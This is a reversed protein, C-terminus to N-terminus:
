PERKGAPHGDGRPRGEGRSRLALVSGIALMLVAFGNWALDYPLLDVDYRVQHLRLVKHDVVGDFLQFGGAGLVLGAWASRRALTGRRRLDSLLFFLLCRVEQAVM